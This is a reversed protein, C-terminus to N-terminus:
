ENDDDEDEDCSEDNNDDDDDDDDHEDYSKKKLYKKKSKLNEVKECDSVANSIVKIKKMFKTFDDKTLTVSKERDEDNLHIYRYGKITIHKKGIKFTKSFNSLKSTKPM